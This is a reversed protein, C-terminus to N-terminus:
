IRGRADFSMSVPQRINPESAVLKLEFGPTVHMKQMAEQPSPVAAPLVNACVCCLLVLGRKMPIFRDQVRRHNRAVLHEYAFHGRRSEGHRARM